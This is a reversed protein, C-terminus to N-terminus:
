DPSRALRISEEQNDLHIKITDGDVVKTLQLNKIVTEKM